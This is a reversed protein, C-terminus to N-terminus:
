GDVGIFRRCGSIFRNQLADFSVFIKKFYMEVGQTEYQIKVMARKNKMLLINAYEHLKAYSKTYDSDVIKLVRKKAMYLRKKTTSCSFRKRLEDLMSECGIDPNVLLVM